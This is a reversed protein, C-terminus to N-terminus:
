DVPTRVETNLIWQWDEVGRDPVVTWMVHVSVVKGDVRWELLCLDASRDDAAKGLCKQVDQLTTDTMGNGTIWKHIKEAPAVPCVKKECVLYYTAEVTTLGDEFRAENVTFGEPVGLSEFVRMNADREQKPLYWLLGGVGGCCLVALLGGVALVVLWVVWGRKKRPAASAPVPM